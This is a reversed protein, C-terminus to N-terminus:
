FAIRLIEEVQSSDLPHLSGITHAAPCALEAIAPLQAREIGIERLRTPLGLIRYFSFLAEAVGDLLADSSRATCGWVQQAYRAIPAPHFPGIFRIWAPTLIALGAGHEVDSFASLAHEIMHCAWDGGGRGRDLLTSHALTGAWMIQSRLALSTPNALVLPGAEIVYRMVAELLQDTLHTEKVPTFYRENLHSLMDSIGCATQRPSLTVTLTPDLLACRPVLAPGSAILKKGTKSDSIVAADSTESGSAPITPVAVIPLAREVSQYNLFHDEWFRQADGSLLLGATIKAVDIVSGGGVALICEIDQENVQRALATVEDYSPNPTVPAGSIVTCRRRKLQEEIRAFLGSSLAFSGTVVLVRTALPHVYDGTRDVIGPGFHIHTPFVLDFPEM